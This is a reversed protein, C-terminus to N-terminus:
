NQKRDASREADGEHRILTVALLHAPERQANGEAGEQERHPRIEGAIVGAIRIELQHLLHAPQRIQPQLPRHTGVTDRHRQDEQGAEDRGQRHQRGPWHAEFWLQKIEEQQRHIAALDGHKGHLVHKQEEEGPLELQDRHVQQQRDPAALFRWYAAVLNM